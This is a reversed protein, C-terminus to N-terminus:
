LIVALGGLGLAFAVLMPMMSQLPGNEPLMPNANGSKAANSPATITFNASSATPSTTTSAGTDKASGESSPKWTRGAGTEFATSIYDFLSAFESSIDDGFTTPCSYHTFLPGPQGALSCGSSIFLSAPCVASTDSPCWETLCSFGSSAASCACKADTFTCSQARSSLSSTCADYRSFSKGTTDCPFSTITDTPADLIKDALAHDSNLLFLVIGILFCSALSTRM